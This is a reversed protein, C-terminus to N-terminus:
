WCRSEGHGLSRLYDVGMQAAMRADTEVVRHATNRAPSEICVTHYGREALWGLLLPSGIAIVRVEAPSRVIIQRAVQEASESQRFYYPHLEFNRRRCELMIQQLLM